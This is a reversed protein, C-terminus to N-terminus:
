STSTGADKAPKSPSTGIALLELAAQPIRQIKRYASPQHLSLYALSGSIGAFGLCVTLVIPVAVVKRLLLRRRAESTIIEDIAALMPVGLSRSVQDASRYAHDLVEALVVFVVGAVVGALLALLVITRAKPDIPTSHGRAPEGVSWHLLKGQLNVRIAPEIKGLMKVHAADRQKAKTIRATNDAYEEQVEFIVGKAERLRTNEQENFELSLTVDKINAEKTNIQVLLRAQDSRWPEPSAEGGAGVPHGAADVPGGGVAVQHDRARQMQLDTSRWQRSAMLEQIEPHQDTMGRTTKFTKIKQEIGEILRTLQLTEPSVYAPASAAEGGSAARTIDSDIAALMQKYADLDARHERRRRLLDNREMELQLLKASIAGPDQPDLYPNELRMRTQEREAARLEILADAKEVSYYERLGELHQQVWDMTRSIYVAKAADLLKRGINPDPGTYTIDIIDVQENPQRTELSIRQGLQRALSKRRAVSAKTFTGDAKREFDATLGIRDVVETMCEVSTLDRAITTSFLKFMAAGQSMELDALIPDNRREFTTAAWYTRPYRLSLIFAGGSVLCFPIIFAWRHLLFIRLWEHLNRRIEALPRGEDSAQAPTVAAGSSSGRDHGSVHGKRSV